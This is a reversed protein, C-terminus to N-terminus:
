DLLRLNIMDHDTMNGPIAPGGNHERSQIMEKTKADREISGLHDNM